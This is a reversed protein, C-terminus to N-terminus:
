FSRDLVLVRVTDGLNLATEDDGVVILANAAALSGSLYSTTSGIPTVKAGRHTVEFNARVYQRRGAPSAIDAALVAHVMPRRYPVLGMLRRLAPLVFVEFSVYASVPDGPLNIIPTGEEGIFGFGQHSGPQMAVDVFDVGGAARLAKKVVDNEGRSIGGTTIIMDARVLQDHVAALFDRPNDPVTGVRYAIGGAARVAAALMFSNGDYVSDYELPSGPERLESGTSIIVVRPRPRASVRALGLSAILGVERPGIVSGTPLVVEGAKIEEAANRIFTGSPYSQRFEVRLPGESALDAPVIVDAGAPVPAGAAIRMTAGPSLAFPTAGGATVEGMLQLEVPNEPNATAIDAARVAYGDTICTDFRPLDHPAVIDTALPLNLSEVIPQDYPALPGIARLIKELHQEVTPPGEPVLRASTAAVPPTNSTDDVSM